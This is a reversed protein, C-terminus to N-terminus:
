TTRCDKPILSQSPPIQDSTITPPPYFFYLARIRAHIHPEYKCEHGVKEDLACLSTPINPPLTTTSATNANTKPLTPSTTINTTTHQSTSSRTPTTSKSNPQIHTKPSPFASLASPKKESEKTKEDSQTNSIYNGDGIVPGNPGQSLM